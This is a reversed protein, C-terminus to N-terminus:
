EQENEKLNTKLKLLDILLHLNRDLLSINLILGRLIYDSTDFILQYDSDYDSHMLEETKEGFHEYQSLIFYQDYANALDKLEGKKIEKVLQKPQWQGKSLKKVKIKDIEFHKPYHRTTLIFEKPLSSFFAKITLTLNGVM